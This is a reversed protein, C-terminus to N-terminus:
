DSKGLYSILAGSFVYPSWGILLYKGSEQFGKDSGYTVLNILHDCSFVHGFAAVNDSYARAEAIRVARAAFSTYMLNGNTCFLAAVQQSEIAAAKYLSNAIAAINACSRVLTVADKEQTLDTRAMELSTYVKSALLEFRGPTHSVVCAAIGDSLITARGANARRIGPVARGCILVLVPRQAAETRLFRNAVDIAAISGGCAQLTVGIVPVQSIGVQYLSELLQIQDEDTCQWNESDIVVAGVHEPSVSSKRLSDRIVATCMPVTPEVQACYHKFGRARFFEIGPCDAAPQSFLEDIAAVCGVRFSLGSIFTRM